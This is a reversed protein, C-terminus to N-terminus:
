GSSSEAKAHTINNLGHSKPYLAQWDIPKTTAKRHRKSRPHADWERQTMVTVNCVDCYRAKINPDAKPVLIAHAVKPSALPPNGKLFNSVADVAPEEVNQQWQALQTSDLLVIQDLKHNDQLARLLKGRIWRQQQRAYQRTAIQTLKVGDQKLKGIHDSGYNLASSATIYLAFEKFGIATWIGSTQNAKCVPQEFNQLSKHLSFVEEILGDKVMQEVRSNLRTSLKDPEAYTWLILPDFQLAPAGSNANDTALRSCQDRPSQCSENPSAAEHQERYITSPQRGSTLYVELSHRIKRRDHPHWKSALEPDVRRLQELMESTSAALIPWKIEQAEATEYKPEPQDVLSGKFLLSQMYYHTGGVLIPLRGRAVISEIIKTAARVYKGVNWPDETPKICGLLHHPISKREPLPLQNTAIPLGEYMQMADANIIEGNFKEALAVALESKGTGTAGVVAIIRTSAFSSSM